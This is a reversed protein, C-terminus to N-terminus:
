SGEEAFMLLAGFAAGSPVVLKAGEMRHPVNNSLLTLQTRALDAVKFV